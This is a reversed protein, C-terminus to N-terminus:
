VTFRRHLKSPSIERARRFSESAIRSRETAARLEKRGVPSTLRALAKTVFRQTEMASKSKM